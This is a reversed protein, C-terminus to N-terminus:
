SPRGGAAAGVSAPESVTPLRVIFTAGHGDPNNHCSIEGGHERV